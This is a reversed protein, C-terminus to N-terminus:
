TAETPQPVPSRGESSEMFNYLRKGVLYKDDRISDHLERLILVSYQLTELGCYLCTIVLYAYRYVLNSVWRAVGLLPLVGRAASYPVSLATVLFILVPMVVERMTRSFNQNLGIVDGERARQIRERWEAGLGGAAAICTWVKFLLLGLAWDQHLCFYPTEDFSVRIPVLILEFLLGAALPIVGLSIFIIVFGKGAMWLYPLGASLATMTDATEVYKVIKVFGTITGFLVNLGLLFPHLDHRVPLGVASMLSRGLMTPIAVLASETLVLTFWALVIMVSARFQIERRSLGHPDPSHIQSPHDHLDGEYLANDIGLDNAVDAHPANFILPVAENEGLVIGEVNRNAQDRMIADGENNTERDKVVLHAIGLAASVWRIWTAIVTHLSIGPRGFYLLRILPGVLLNGFPVDILIHSFDESRFPFIHPLVKLCLQAPAYVLALILPVYIIVSICMRRAHRSLPKEVLERFPHFEPDDPNRLFWLLQPKVVERLLSIFLSIHVMYIIGMIWHGGTCTWPSERCYSVRSQMSGGLIELTCYDLWWGCGLPFIGFEFLILVVIKVFTAVYRLLRAVQRTIPSDLRPYRHRLVSIIGIYGVAFLAIIGYGLLVKLFNDMHVSHTSIGQLEDSISVSISPVYSKTRTDIGISLADGSRSAVLDGDIGASIKPVLAESINKTDGKMTDQIREHDSPIVSRLLENWLSDGDSPAISIPFSRIQFLRMTLRGILLPILTFVLLFIANSVLVTGANDFLNRIQGRLGVVEELPVEDPDLEFLGFLAGGDADDDHPDIGEDDMHDDADDNPHQELFNDAVHFMQGPIGDDDHMGDASDYEDGLDADDYDLLDGHEDQAGPTEYHIGESDADMIDDDAIIDDESNDGGAIVEYTDRVLEDVEDFVEDNVEAPADSDPIPPFQFRTRNSHDDDQRAQNQPPMEGNMDPPYGAIEDDRNQIEDNDSSYDDLDNPILQDDDPFPAFRHDDHADIDDHPFHRVYERLSSVGLFVFVIGASLLCGYFADTIVGAPTRSAFLNPLDKPSSIFLAYWTWCTGVPLFFLWVTFVLVIRAAMKMTKRTLALVGVIFEKTPLASPTNPRYLPEFRFPHNCLECRSSGSQALWNLLCDEHTFKISGSCRCPHLLPRGPESDGRCIRCELESEVETM